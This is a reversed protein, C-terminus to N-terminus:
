FLSTRSLHSAFFSHLKDSEEKQKMENKLEWLHVLHTTLFLVCAAAAKQEGKGDLISTQQCAEGDHEQEGGVRSLYLQALVVSSQILLLESWHPISCPVDAPTQQQFFLLLSSLPNHEQKIKLEEAKLVRSNELPTPTQQAAPVCLIVGNSNKHLEYMCYIDTLLAALNTKEVNIM